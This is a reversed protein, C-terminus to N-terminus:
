NAVQVSSTNICYIKLDESAFDGCEEEHPKYQMTKDETPLQEVQENQVCGSAKLHWEAVIPNERKYGSLRNGTKQYIEDITNKSCKAYALDFWQDIKGIYNEVEEVTKSVKVGEVFWELKGMEEDTPAKTTKPKEKKDTQKKDAFKLHPLTAKYWNGVGKRFAKYTDESVTEKIRNLQLRLDELAKDYEQQNKAKFMLDKDRNVSNVLEKDIYEHNQPKSPKTESVSEKMDITKITKNDEENQSKDLDDGDELSNYFDWFSKDKDKFLDKKDVPVNDNHEMEKKINKEKINNDKMCTSNSCTTYIDKEIETDSETTCKETCKENEDTCKETCKKLEEIEKKLLVIENELSEIKNTWYDTLTCKETCKENEDTCKETCKENEDTCKETCKENEDTCKETCMKNLLTGNLLTFENAKRDKLRGSKVKIYEKQVLLAIARSISTKSKIFTDKMLDDYSRYVYGNKQADEMGYLFIINGLVLKASDTLEKSNKLAKPLFALLDKQEDTFKM